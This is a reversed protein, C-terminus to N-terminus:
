EANGLLYIVEHVTTCDLLNGPLDGDHLFIEAIQKEVRLYLTDDYPPAVLAVFVHVLGEDPADFDIGERSLAIALIMEKAQITRVHPMAVGRGLATSAKKERNWLDTVLRNTQGVRGSVALLGSLERIVEEKCRKRARELPVEPEPDHWRTELELRILDPRLFRRLKM